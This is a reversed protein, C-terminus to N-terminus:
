ERRKPGPTARLVQRGHLQWSVYNKRHLAEIGPVTRVWEVLPRVWEAEAGLEAPVTDNSRRYSTISEAQTLPAPEDVEGDVYTFVRVAPVIWPVRGQTPAALQTPILLLLQQDKRMALGSMLAMDATTQDVQPRVYMLLRTEDAFFRYATLLKGSIKMPHTPGGIREALDNPTVTSSVGPVYTTFQGTSVERAMTTANKHVLQRLQDYVEAVPGDQVGMASWYSAYSSRDELQCFWDRWTPNPGKSKMKNLGHEYGDGPAPYFSEPFGERGEPAVWIGLVRSWNNVDIHLAVFM